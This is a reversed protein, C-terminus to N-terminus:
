PWTWLDVWVSKRQAFACWPASNVSPMSGAQVPREVAERPLAECMVSPAREGLSRLVSM